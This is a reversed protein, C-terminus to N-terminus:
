RGCPASFAEVVTSGAAAHSSGAAQSGGVVYVIGDRVVARAFNRATPMPAIRTWEGKAEDLRLAEAITSQTAQSEGGFFHIAGCYSVAGSTGRPPISPMAVWRDNAADYRYVDGFDSPGSRGGVSYLVGGHVVAAPSGMSRPLPARESWQQTLPDFVSHDAITSRSNGGGIVHIRGDLVAAAHGGRPAPLAPGESWTGHATDFVHVQSVPVNTTLDFGGILFIREGIAAAAPANLGNGPLRSVVTWSSGDFREVEIVPRGSTGTGALAYIGSPTSVAAHAARGQHMSPASRWTGERSPSTSACGSVVAAIVVIWGRLLGHMAGM